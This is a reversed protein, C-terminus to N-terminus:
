SRPELRLIPLDRGNSRERYREFAKSRAVFRAWSEAYDDGTLEAARVPLLRVAGGEDAPVEVTVDPQAKLNFYWGPHRHAGGASAIVLWGREDRVGAVPVVREQGTRAGITHLVVLGRGFGRTEVVGGNARFEAVIRDSFDSM